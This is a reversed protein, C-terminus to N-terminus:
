TLAWGAQSGPPTSGEVAGGGVVCLPSCVVGM